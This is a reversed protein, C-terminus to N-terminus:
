LDVRLAETRTFTAAQEQLDAQEAAKVVVAEPDAYPEYDNFFGAGGAGKGYVWYYGKSEDLLIWDGESLPITRGLSISGGDDVMIGRCWNNLPVLNDGTYQMASYVVEPNEILQYQQPEKM